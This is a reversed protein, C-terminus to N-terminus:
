LGFSRKVRDIAQEYEALVRALWVIACQACIAKQDGYDGHKKVHTADHHISVLNLTTKPKM